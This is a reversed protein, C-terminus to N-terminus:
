SPYFKSALFLPSIFNRRCKALRRYIVPLEISLLRQNQYNALFDNLSARDDVRRVGMAMTATNLTVLGDTAGLQGALPHFDGLLEIAEGVKKVKLEIM